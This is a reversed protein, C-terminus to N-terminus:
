RRIRGPSDDSILKAPARGLVVRDDLCQTLVRLPDICGITGLVPEFTLCDEDILRGVGDYAVKLIDIQTPVPRSGILYIGFELAKDLKAQNATVKWIAVLFFHDLRDV